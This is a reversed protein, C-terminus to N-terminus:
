YNAFRELKTKNSVIHNLANTDKNKIEGNLFKHELSSVKKKALMKKYNEVAQADRQGKLKKVIPDKKPHTKRIKNLQNKLLKIPSKHNKTSVAITGIAMATIASAAACISIKEGRSLDTRRSAIIGETYHCARFNPSYSSNAIPTIRMKYRKKVVFSCSIIVYKKLQQIYKIFM